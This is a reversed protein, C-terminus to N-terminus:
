PTPQQWRPTWHMSGDPLAAQTWGRAVMRQQSMRDFKFGPKITIGTVVHEPNSPSNQIMWEPAQAGAQQMLLAGPKNGPIVDLNQPKGYEVVAGKGGQGLALDKYPSVWVGGHKMYSNGMDAATQPSTEHYLYGLGRRAANLDGVDWGPAATRQVDQLSPFASGSEPISMMALQLDNKTGEDLGTEDLVSSKGLAIRLM